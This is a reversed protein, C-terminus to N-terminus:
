LTRPVVESNMMQLAERYNSVCFHIEEILISEDLVRYLLSAEMHKTLSEKYTHLRPSSPAVGSKRKPKLANLKRVFPSPPPTAGEMLTGWRISWEVFRPPTDKLNFFQITVVANEGITLPFASMPNLFGNHDVEASRDDEVRPSLGFPPLPAEIRNREEGRRPSSLFSKWVYLRPPPFVLAKTDANGIIQARGLLVRDLRLDKKLTAVIRHKEEAIWASPGGAKNKLQLSISEITMHQVLGQYEVDYSCRAEYIIQMSFDINDVSYDHRQRDLMIEDIVIRQWPVTFPRAIYVDISVSDSFPLRINPLLPDKISGKWLHTLGDKEPFAIPLTHSLITLFMKQKKGGSPSLFLSEKLRM